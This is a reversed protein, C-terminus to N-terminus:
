QQALIAGKLSAQHLAPFHCDPKDDPLAVRQLLVLLGAFIGAVSVRGYPDGSRMSILTAFWTSHDSGAKHLNRAQSVKWGQLHRDCTITFYRNVKLPSCPTWENMWKSYDMCTIIVLIYIDHSVLTATCCFPRTWQHYLLNFVTAQVRWLWQQCFRLDQIEQM